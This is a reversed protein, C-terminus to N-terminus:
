VIFGGSRALSHTRCYRTLGGGGGGLGGGGSFMPRNVNFGTYNWGAGNWNTTTGVWRWANAGHERGDFAYMDFGSGCATACNAYERIEDLLTAKLWIQSANSRFGFFLGAGNEGIGWVKPRVPCPPDCWTGNEAAEPLRGFGGASMAVKKADFGSNQVLGVADTWEMSPPAQVSADLQKSQQNRYSSISAAAAALLAIPLM